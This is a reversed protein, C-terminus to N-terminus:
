CDCTEYKCISATIQCYCYSEGSCQCSPMLLSEQEGVVQGLDDRTLRHLTERSLGLKTHRKKM